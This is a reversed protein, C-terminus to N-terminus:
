ARRPACTKEDSPLVTSGGCCPCVQWGCGWGVFVHGPVHNVRGEPRKCSECTKTPVEVCSTVKQPKGWQANVAFVGDYSEGCRSCKQPGDPRAADYDDACTYHEHRDCFQCEADSVHNQAGCECYWFVSSRRAAGSM